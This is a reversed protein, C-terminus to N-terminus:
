RSTCFYVAGGVYPHTRKATCEGESFEKAQALILKEGKRCLAFQDYITCADLKGVLLMNGIVMRASPDFAAAPAACAIAAAILAIRIM